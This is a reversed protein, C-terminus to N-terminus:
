NSHRLRFTGDARGREAAARTAAHRPAVEDARFAGQLESRERLKRLVKLNHRPKQAPARQCVREHERTDTGRCLLEHSHATAIPAPGRAAAAAAAAAGGLRGASKVQM